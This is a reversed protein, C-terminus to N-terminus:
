KALTVNVANLGKPGEQTSFTVDDGEEPTYGNPCGTSHVFIDKKGQLPTIFGFGKIRNFWKITGKQADANNSM